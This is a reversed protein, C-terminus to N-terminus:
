IAEEHKEDESSGKPQNGESRTSSNSRIRNVAFLLTAAIFLVPAIMTAMGYFVVYIAGALAALGPGESSAPRMGCLISTYPRWNLLHFLGWLGILILGRICFGRAWRARGEEGSGVAKRIEGQIPDTM